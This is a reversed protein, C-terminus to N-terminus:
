YKAIIKESIEEIMERANGNEVVQIAISDLGAAEMEKLRDILEDAPGTLSSM